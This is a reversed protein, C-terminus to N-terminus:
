SNQQLQIEKSLRALPNQLAEPVLSGSMNDKPSPKKQLFSPLIPTAPSAAVASGQLTFGSAQGVDGVGVSATRTQDMAPLTLQPMGSSLFSPGVQFPHLPRFGIPNLLQQGDTTVDEEMVRQIISM